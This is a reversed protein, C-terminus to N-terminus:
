RMNSADWLLRLTMPQGDSLRIDEGAWDHFTYLYGDAYVGLVAGDQGHAFATYTGDGDHDTFTIRGIRDYDESFSDIVYHSLAGHFSLSSASWIIVMLVFVAFVAALSTTIILVRHGRSVKIKAVWYGLAAAVILTVILIIM